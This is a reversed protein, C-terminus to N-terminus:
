LLGLSQDDTRAITVILSESGRAHCPIDMISCRQDPLFARYLLRTGPKSGVGKALLGVQTRSRRKDPVKPPSKSRLKM